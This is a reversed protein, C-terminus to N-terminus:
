NKANALSYWTGSCRGCGNRIEDGIEGEEGGSELKVTRERQIFVGGVSDPYAFLVQLGAWAIRFHDQAVM